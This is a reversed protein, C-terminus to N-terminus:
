ERQFRIKAGSLFGVFEYHSLTGYGRGFSLHLFIDHLILFAVEMYSTAM